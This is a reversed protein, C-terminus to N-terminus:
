SGNLLKQLVSKNGLYLPYKSLKKIRIPKYHHTYTVSDSCLLEIRM